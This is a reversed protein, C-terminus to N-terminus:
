ERDEDVAPLSEQKISDTDQADSSEVQGPALSSLYASLLSDVKTSRSSLSQPCRCTSYYMCKRAEEDRRPKEGFFAVKIEERYAKEEETEVDKLEEERQARQAKARDSSLVRPNKEYFDRMEEENKFEM